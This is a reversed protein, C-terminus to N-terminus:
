APYRKNLGAKTLVENIEQKLELIREERGMMIKNLKQLEQNKQLLREYRELLEQSTVELSHELLVRDADAQEYAQNIAELLPRWEPPSQDLSEIKLFRKLQRALLKHM